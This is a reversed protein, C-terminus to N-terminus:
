YFVSKMSSLIQFLYIYKYFHNDAHSNVTFTITRLPFGVNKCIELPRFDSVLIAWLFLVYFYGTSVNHLFTDHKSSRSFDLNFFSAIEAPWHYFRRGWGVVGWGGVILARSFLLFLFFVISEEEGEDTNCVFNEIDSNFLFDTNWGLQLQVQVALTLTRM